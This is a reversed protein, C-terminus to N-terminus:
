FSGGPAQDSQARTALAQLVAVSTSTRLPQVSGDAFAFHVVTDHPSFFDYPECYYDNLPKNGVRALVMCPALELTSSYVPAGPTTRITGGTMVGAWPAQTFFAGREGVVLTQSTGDKIDSTRTRSNQYLVGNGKEPETNLLGLAGFCGVYSNTAAECQFLNKETLFKAIGTERDTPCVYTPVMTRRPKDHVLNEVAMSFDIEDHLAHQELYPLLRAPWGWGPGRNPIPTPRPPPPPPRDFKRSLLSAAPPGPPPEIPGPLSVPPLSTDTEYGAPFRDHKDHHLQLALAIQKLNNKCRTQLATERAAQVAPLLIAILLGVITVAVLLEILTFAPRKIM